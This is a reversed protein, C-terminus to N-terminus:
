ENPRSFKNIIQGVWKNYEGEDNLLELKEEDLNNFMYEIYEELESEFGDANCKWNDYNHFDEM